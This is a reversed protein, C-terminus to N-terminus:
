FDARLGFRLAMPDGGVPVCELKWSTPGADKRLGGASAHIMSLLRNVVAAALADHMRKTARQKAQREARYRLLSEDSDWSWAQDGKIEHAAVYAAEAAPDGFYLNAADRRVVLLNYEESSRYFGVVRRYEEDRGRLDIGAYIAATREYTRQRMAEQIRFAAFSSWVGLEVLGFVRAGRRDGLTAEGWGPVTLSQLMLRVRRGSLVHPGANGTSTTTTALSERAAPKQKKPRDRREGMGRAALLAGDDIMVSPAALASGLAPAAPSAPESEGLVFGSGANGRSDGPAALGIGAGTGTSAWAQAPAWLLACLILWRAGPRM